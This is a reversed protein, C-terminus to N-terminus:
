LQAGKRKARAVIALVGGGILLWPAPEPVPSVQTQAVGVVATKTEIFAFDFGSGAAPTLASLTTQFSFGIQQASFLAPAVGPAGPTIAATALWDHPSFDAVTLPTLASVAFASSSLTAVPNGADFASIQGGIGVSSDSGFLIYDGFASLALGSFTFGPHATLVIGAVITDASGPGVGNVSSVSSTNPTFFFNSGVLSPTGFAGLQADNYTLDFQDGTVTVLGATAATPAAAPLALLACLLVKGCNRLLMNSSQIREFQTSLRILLRSIINM